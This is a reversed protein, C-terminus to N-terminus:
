KSTPATAEGPNTPSPGQDGGSPKGRLADIEAQRTRLYNARITAYPDAPGSLTERIEDDSEAREDVLRVVTTPIAYAPQNFPKGVAMPMVSLDGMRGVLDRVTTPGILQLYM